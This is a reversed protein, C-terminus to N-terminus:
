QSTQTLTVCAASRREYVRWVTLNGHLIILQSRFNANITGWDM